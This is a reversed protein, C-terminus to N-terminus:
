DGAPDTDAHDPKASDGDSTAAPTDESSASADDPTAEAPPQDSSPTSGAEPAASQGAAHAADEYAQRQQRGIDMLDGVLNRAEEASAEDSGPPPSPVPAAGPGDAADPSSAPVETPAPEPANSPAAHDADEPTPAAEASSETEPATNEGAVVVAQRMALTRKQGGVQIVAREHRADYSVVAIEERSGGVPIWLTGKKPDKRAISLLPGKPTAVMGMLEYDADAAPTGATARAKEPPPAFPSKGPLTDAAVAASLAAILVFAAIPLPRFMFM